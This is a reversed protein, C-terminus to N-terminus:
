LAKFPNKWSGTNVSGFIGVHAPELRNGPILVSLLNSAARVATISSGPMSRLTAQFLQSQPPDGRVPASFWLGSEQWYAITAGTQSVFFIDIQRPNTASGQWAAAIPSGPVGPAFAFPRKPDQGPFTTRRTITTQTWANSNVVSFVRLCGTDDNGGSCLASPPDHAVRGGIAYVVLENDPTNVKRQATALGAGPRLTVSSSFLTLGTWSAAPAANSFYARLKGNNDVALVNAQNGNQLDAAIHAINCEGDCNALKVPFKVPNGSSLNQNPWPTSAASRFLRIDGNTDVAFVSLETGRHVTAIPTGPQLAVSSVTAAATWSTANGSIATSFMRLQGNTGVAFALLNSNLTDFAVAGGPPFMGSTGLTALRAPWDGAPWTGSGDQKRGYIAITGAREIVGATVMKRSPDQLFAAVKSDPVVAPLSGTGYVNVQGSFSALFVKGNAVTPPVFKSHVYPAFPTSTSSFDNAYDGWLVKLSGNQSTSDQIPKADLAILGGAHVSNANLTLTAELPVAAFLISSPSTTSGNTAVTLMGGPMGRNPAVLTSRMPTTSFPQTGGTRQYAKLQDKEAWVYLWKANNPLTAYTPTGHIHPWMIWNGMNPTDCDVNRGAAIKQIVTPNTEVAPNDPIYCNPDCWNLLQQEPTPGTVCGPVNLRTWHSPSYGGLSSPSLVYVIGEKGGAIVDNMDTLMVGASGLDMDSRNHWESRYPTFFSQVSFTVGTVNGGATTIAPHVKLVSNPLYMPNTTVNSSDQSTNQQHILANGTQFYLDTGDSAIGTSAQWIGGGKFLANAHITDFSGVQNLTNADFAIVTGRYSYPSNDFAEEECHSGFGAYVVGNADNAGDLLLLSARQRLRKASQPTLVIEKDVLTAGSRLDLKAIRQQALNPDQPNSTSPNTRYSVYVVGTGTRSIVPTTQVGIGYIPDQDPYITIPSMQGCDESGTSLDPTGLVNPSWLPAYNNADFAYVINLATAVIVVDHNASDQSIFQNQVFLPQAWVAGFVSLSALKQFAGDKFTQLNIATDTLKGARAMGQRQTLTDASTAANAAGALSVVAGVLAFRYGVRRVHRMSNCSTMAKSEGHQQFNLEIGSRVGSRRALRPAHKPTQRSTLRLRRAIGM